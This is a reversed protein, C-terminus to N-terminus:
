FYINQLTIKLLIIFFILYTKLFTNALHRLTNLFRIDLGCFHHVFHLAVKFTSM